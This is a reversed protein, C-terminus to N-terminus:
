LNNSMLQIGLKAAKEYKKKDFTYLNPSKHGGIKRTEHLPKVYGASLIKRQFNRRDISRELITEYIVRLEPMTFKEPLLGYGIPLFGVLRRITFICTDIIEKHDPNICFCDGIRFWRLEDKNSRLEKIEENRVLSYYALNILRPFASESVGQMGVVDTRDKDGFFHFQNMFPRKVGIKDKLIRHAAQDADEDHAILGGPLIWEAEEKPKCLLLKLSGAEFCFAVCSITVGPVYKDQDSGSPEYLPNYKEM